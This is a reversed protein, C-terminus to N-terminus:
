CGQTVVEGKGVARAETAAASVARQQWLVGRVTSGGFWGFVSWVLPSCRRVGGARGKVGEGVVFCRNNVLHASKLKSFFIGEFPDRESVEGICRAGQAERGRGRLEM